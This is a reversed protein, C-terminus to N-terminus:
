KSRGNLDQIAMLLDLVAKEAHALKAGAILERRGAMALFADLVEDSNRALAVLHEGSPAYRGFFWNKATREHAGTWGAAM